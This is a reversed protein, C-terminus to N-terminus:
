FEKYIIARKMSLSGISNKCVLVKNEKSKYIINFSRINSKNNNLKTLDDIILKHLDELINKVNNIEVFQTIENDTKANASSYYKLIDGKNIGTSGIYLNGSNYQIAISTIKKNDKKLIEFINKIIPEKLQIKFNDDLDLKNYYLNM